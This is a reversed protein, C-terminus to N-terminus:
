PRDPSWSPVPRLDPKTSTDATHLTIGSTEHSPETATNHVVRTLPTWGHGDGTDITVERKAELKRGDVTVYRAFVMVRDTNPPGGPWPLQLHIGKGFMTNRLKNVTDAADFDWRAIRAASGSQSADLVVISINGPLAVYQGGHNRPEVVVFLGEDGPRGDFDYGGTLRSNVVIRAINADVQVMGVDNSEALAIPEMQHSLHAHHSAQGLRSGELTPVELPPANDLADTPLEILPADGSPPALEELTPDNSSDDLSEDGSPADGPAQLVDQDAPTPRSGADANPEQSPAEKAAAPPNERPTPLLSRLPRSKRPEEVITGCDESQSRYARRCSALQANKLKVEDELAYLQDELWRNESELMEISTDDVMRCGTLPFTAASLCLWAMSSFIRANM